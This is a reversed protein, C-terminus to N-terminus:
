AQRFRRPKSFARDLNPTEDPQDVDLESALEAAREAFLDEDVHGKLADPGYLFGMGTRIFTNIRVRYAPTAVHWM